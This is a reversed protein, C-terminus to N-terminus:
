QGREEGGVKAYLQRLPLRARLAHPFGAPTGWPTTLAVPAFRLSTLPVARGRASPPAIM